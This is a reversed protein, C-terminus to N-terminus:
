GEGLMEIEWEGIGHDEIGDWGIAGTISFLLSSFSIGEGSRSRGTGLMVQGALGSGKGEGIITGAVCM